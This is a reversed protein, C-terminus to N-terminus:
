LAFMRAQSFQSGTHLATESDILKILIILGQFSNLTVEEVINQPLEYITVMDFIFLRGSM